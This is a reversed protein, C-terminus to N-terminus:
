FEAVARRLGEDVSVVPRWDLLRRAKSIDVQLSGLLRQMLLRQGVLTAATMLLDERVSILRAPRGMAISLRRLLETTSLDAGDSVFFTEDAAEPREVCTFIFNVLNDLAVLSRSNTVAGFPLPIGLSVARMLARFNARVGPGYVLPARIVTIAMGSEDAVGRLGLEAEHKSVGYPDLPIPVDDETHRGDEGNVKVSSLFVFRSVGASAAQRALNVTGETNVERYSELASRRATARVHVKAALHVVAEIDVLAETWSTNADINGVVVSEVDISLSTNRTARRVRLDRRTLAHEIVRSGVFGTSGTVLIRLIATERAPIQSASTVIPPRSRCRDSDPDAQTGFAPPALSAM